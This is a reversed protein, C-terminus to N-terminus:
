AAVKEVEERGGAGERRSEVAADAVADAVAAAAPFLLTKEEVAKEAVVGVPWMWSTACSVWTLNSFGVVSGAFPPTPAFLPM